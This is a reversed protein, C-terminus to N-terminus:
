KSNLRERIDITKREAIEKYKGGNDVALRKFHEMMGDVMDAVAIPKNETSNHFTM